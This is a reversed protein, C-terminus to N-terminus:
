QSGDCHVGRAIQSRVDTPWVDVSSLAHCAVCWASLTAVNFDQESLFRHFGPELRCIAHGAVRNLFEELGKRREEVFAADFKGWLKKGPLEPVRRLSGKTKDNNNVQTVLHARLDAGVIPPSGACLLRVGSACEFDSYRRRVSFTTSKYEPLNTHTTILFTTHLKKGESDEEDKPESVVIDIM